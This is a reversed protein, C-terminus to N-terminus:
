PKIARARGIQRLQNEAKALTFPKFGAEELAQRLSIRKGAAQTQEVIRAAAAFRRLTSGIQALIAIPAEGGTLLHDLETMAERAHGAAAHDLMEWTTRTRWGGVADRVLDATITGGIGVSVALKALEQ